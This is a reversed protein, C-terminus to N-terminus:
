RGWVYVFSFVLLWIVDVFHWYWAAFEFGLHGKKIRSDKEEGSIVLNDDYTFDGRKTRFYCVTLFITGIIVHAGHFGTTLYFNSGYIGDTIKFSAHAYEYAQMLSFFIGLFITCALATLADERNNEEISYHAWTVTSGSLLLILTNLFPVDWPDFTQIGKPPWSSAVGAWVGDLIGEPYLSAKFFSWFFVFFFMVESMIFLSMGIRLGKRVPSTHHLGFKGEKVVDRWWSYTSFILSLLGFAVLYEGYHYQHLLMVTGILLFFLSFATVIPWPSLDVLHFPHQQSSM